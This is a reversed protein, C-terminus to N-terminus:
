DEVRGLGYLIIIERTIVIIELMKYKKGRKM